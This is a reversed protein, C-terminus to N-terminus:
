NCKHKGNWSLEDPCHLYDMNKNYLVWATCGRGLNGDTGTPKCKKTFGSDTNGDPVIKYAYAIFYFETKGLIRKKPSLVVYMDIRTSTNQGLNVFTGDALYFSSERETNAKTVSPEARLTGNIDYRASPYCITGIECKKMVKLFQQLRESILKQGSYDYIKKGNEDTTKTDASNIGWTTFPGYETVMAQWAQSLTSYVKSLQNITRQEEIKQIIVPMTIAAVVGIVGLTILVEALTFATKRLNFHKRIM